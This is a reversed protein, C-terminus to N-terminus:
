ILGSGAESLAQARLAVHHHAADFTAPTKLTM